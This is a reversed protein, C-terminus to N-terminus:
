DCAMANINDDVGPFADIGPAPYGNPEVAWFDPMTGQAGWSMRAVWWADGTWLSHDPCVALGRVDGAPGGGPDSHGREEFCGYTGCCYGSAIGHVAAHGHESGIWVTGGYASGLDVAFRLGRQIHMAHIPDTITLHHISLKGYAQVDVVD